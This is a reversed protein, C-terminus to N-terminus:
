SCMHVSMYACMRICRCVNVHTFVNAFASLYVIICVNTYVQVCCLLPQIYPIMLEDVVDSDVAVLASRLNSKQIFLFYFIQTTRCFTPNKPYSTFSPQCFIPSKQNFIPQISPLILEDVADSDM